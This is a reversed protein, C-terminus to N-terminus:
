THRIPAGEPRGRSRRLLAVLGCSAIMLAWSAPEPVDTADTVGASFIFTGGTAQTSFTPDIMAHSISGDDNPSISATLRVLYPTNAVMSVNYTGIPGGDTPFAGSCANACHTAAVILSGFTFSGGRDFAQGFSLNNQGYSGTPVTLVDSSTLTVDYTGPAASYQVFYWLEARASGGGVLPDFAQSAYLDVFPSAGLGVTAVCKTGCGVTGSVDLTGLDFSTRTNDQLKLSFSEFSYVEGLVSGPLVVANAAPALGLAAVGALVLYAWIRM